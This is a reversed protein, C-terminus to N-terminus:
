QVVFSIINLVCDIQEERLRYYTEIFQSSFIM